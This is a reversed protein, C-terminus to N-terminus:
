EKVWKGVAIKRGEATIRYTYCGQPLTQTNIETQQQNIEERLVLKGNMSFMELLANQHQMALKVKFRQGGPNPYVVAESASIGQPEDMGTILGESNVKLLFLNFKREGMPRCLGCLIFGGDMTPQIDNGFLTTQDDGYYIQKELNLERDFISLQVRTPKNMNYWLPTIDINYIGGVAIKNENVAVSNLMFSYLVTDEPNVKPYIQTGKITDNNYDKEYFYISRFDKFPINPDSKTTGRSCLVYSTDTFPSVYCEFKMYSPTAAECGIYNMDTDLELIKIASEQDKTELNGHYFVFFRDLSNNYLIDSASLMNASMTYKKDFGTYRNYKHISTYPGFKGNVIIYVVSDTLPKIKRFYDKDSQAPFISSTIINLDEDITKIFLSRHIRDNKISDISGGILYGSGINKSITRVSSNNTDSFYLNNLFNGNRDIKYIVGTNRGKELIEEKVALLFGGGEAETVTAFILSNDTDITKYFSTQAISICSCILALFSLILKYM